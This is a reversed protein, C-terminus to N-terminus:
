SMLELARVNYGWVLSRLSGARDQQDQMAIIRKLRKTLPNQESWDETLSKLRDEVNELAMHHFHNSQPDDLKELSSNTIVRRLHILYDLQEDQSRTRMTKFLIDLIDAASSNKGEMEKLVALEVMESPLDPREKCEECLLTEGDVLKINEYEELKHMKKLLIAQRGMDGFPPMRDEIQRSKQKRLHLSYLYPYESELKREALKIVRQFHRREADDLCEIGKLILEPAVRLPNCIFQGLCIFYTEERNAGSIIGTSPIDFLRELIAEVLHPHITAIRRLESIFRNLQVEDLVAINPNGHKELWAEAGEPSHTSKRLLYPKTEM